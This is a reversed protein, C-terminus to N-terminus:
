GVCGNQMNLYFKHLIIKQWRNKIKIALHVQPVTHQIVSEVALVMYKLFDDGRIGIATFRRVSPYTNVQWIFVNCWNNVYMYMLLVWSYVTQLDFEIVILQFTFICENPVTASFFLLILVKQDLTLWEGTSGNIVTSGFGM